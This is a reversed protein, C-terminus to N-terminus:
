VTIPQRQRRQMSCYFVCRWFVLVVASIRAADFAGQREKVCCQLFPGVIYREQVAQELHTKRVLIDRNPM